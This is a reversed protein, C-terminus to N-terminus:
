CNGGRKYETIVNLVNLLSIPTTQAKYATIYNLIEILSICGNCDADAQTNCSGFGEDIFGDCDDDRGNLTENIGHQYWNLCQYLQSINEDPLIM